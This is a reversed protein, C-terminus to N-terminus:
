DRSELIKQLKFVDANVPTPLGKMILKETISERRCEMIVEWFISIVILLTGIYLLIKPIEM